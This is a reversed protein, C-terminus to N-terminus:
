GQQRSSLAFGFRRATGERGACVKRLRLEAFQLLGYMPVSGPHGVYLLIGERRAPHRKARSVSICSVMSLFIPLNMHVKTSPSDILEFGADISVM